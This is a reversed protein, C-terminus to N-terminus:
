PLTVLWKTYPGTCTYCNSNNEICVHDHLHLWDCLVPGLIPTVSVTTKLVPMTMSASSALSHPACCTHCPFTVLLQTCPGTYTDHFCSWGSLANFKIFSILIEAETRFTNLSISYVKLKLRMRQVEEYPINDFSFGHEFVPQNTGKVVDTSQKQVKGPMLCVQLILMMIEKKACSNACCHKYSRYTTVLGCINSMVWQALQLHALVASM